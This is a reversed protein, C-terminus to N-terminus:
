DEVYHPEPRSHLDEYHVLAQQRGLPCPRGDRFAWEGRACNAATVYGNIYFRRDRDSINPGSGHVTHVGWLAVDGPDLELDVLRAPDLGLTTLDDASMASHMIRGKAEFPLDGLRHSGPYLKMAGNAKRHPDVAIGTQVYSAALDRYAHRPKRFRADQHFGFEVMEGGPPKWHMQNIIQKLEPGILPALIAALRPDRRFRELIPDFYAPWQVMRVMTGLRPDRAVHFYVNRHRFSRGHTLGELYVRDFAAALEAMECADFVGRVVAYGDQHFQELHDRDM